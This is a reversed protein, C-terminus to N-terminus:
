KKQKCNAYELLYQNKFNIRNDRIFKIAASRATAYKTFNQWVIKTSRRGHHNIHIHPAEYLSADIKIIEIQQGAIDCLYRVCFKIM